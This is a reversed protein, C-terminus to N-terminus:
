SCKETTREDGIVNSLQSGTGHLIGDARTCKRKEERAAFSRTTQAHGLLMRVSMRCLESISLYIRLNDIRHNPLSIQIHLMTQCCVIWAGAVGFCVFAFLYPFSRSYDSLLSLNSRRYTDTYHSSSSRTWTSLKRAICWFISAFSNIILIHNSWCETSLFVLCFYYM